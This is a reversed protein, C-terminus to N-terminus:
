KEQSKGEIIGDWLFLCSKEETNLKRKKRSRTGREEEKGWYMGYKKGKTDRMREWGFKGRYM